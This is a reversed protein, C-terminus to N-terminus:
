GTPCTADGSVTPPRTSRAAAAITKLKHVGLTETMLDFQACTRAGRARKHAETRAHTRARARAHAHTHTHVRVRVDTCKYANVLM